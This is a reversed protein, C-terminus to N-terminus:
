NVTVFGLIILKPNVLNSAQPKCKILCLMRDVHWSQQPSHLLVCDKAMSAYM